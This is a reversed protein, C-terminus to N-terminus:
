SRSTAITVFFLYVSMVLTFIGITEAGLENSLYVNFGLSIFRMFLASITLICGNILIIKAKKM